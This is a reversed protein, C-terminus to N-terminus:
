ANSFKIKVLCFFEPLTVVGFSSRCLKIDAKMESIHYITENGNLAPCEAYYWLKSNSKYRVIVSFM